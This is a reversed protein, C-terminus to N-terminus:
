AFRIRKKRHKPPIGQRQLEKAKRIREINEKATKKQELYKERTDHCAARREKCKYCCTIQESM